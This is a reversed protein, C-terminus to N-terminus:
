GSRSDSSRLAAWRGALILCTIGLSLFAYTSPEPVSALTLNASTAPISNNSYPTFSDGQFTLSGFSSGIAGASYSSLITWGNNTPPPSSLNLTSSFGGLNLSNYSQTFIQLTSGAYLTENLVTSELDITYRFM